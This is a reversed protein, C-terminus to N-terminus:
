DDLQNGSSCVVGMGMTVTANTSITSFRSLNWYCLEHYQELTLSDIVMTKDTADLYNTGRRRSIEGLNGHPWPNNNGPVLDACLRGTSRHIWFTCREEYLFEQFTSYFYWAAYYETNKYGCIYLILLPSHRYLELFHKFSILDGHFVTAHMMSLTTFGCLQMFYLHSAVLVASCGGGMEERRWRGPLHWTVTMNGKLGMVM